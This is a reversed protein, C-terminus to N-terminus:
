KLDVLLLVLYLMLSNWLPLPEAHTALSLLLVDLLLWHLGLLLLPSPAVLLVLRAAVHKLVECHM